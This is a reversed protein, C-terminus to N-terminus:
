EDIACRRDVVMVWLSANLHHENDHNTAVVIMLAMTISM